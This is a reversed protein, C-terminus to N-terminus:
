SGARINGIQCVTAILEGTNHGVLGKIFRLYCEFSLLHQGHFGHAKSIQINEFTEVNVKVSIVCLIFYFTSHKMKIDFCLCYKMCVSCPFFSAIQNTSIVNFRKFEVFLFIVKYTM